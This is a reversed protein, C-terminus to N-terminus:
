RTEEPLGMAELVGQPTCFTVTAARPDRGLEDVLIATFRRLQQANSAMETRVAFALHPKELESAADFAVPWSHAPDPAGAWIALLRHGDARDDTGEAPPRSGGRRLGWANALKRRVGYATRVPHALRSGMGPGASRPSVWRTSTMPLEWLGDGGMRAPRLYDEVSPRYPSRPAWRFDGTKGTWRTGPLDADRNPPEGPAVTMDIGIGLRALRNMTATSTFQAGYRHYTPMSGLSETYSRVALELCEDVWAQDHHDAVWGCRDGQWRWAHSHLGIADGAALLEDPQTRYKEAVYSASGYALEIQPDM